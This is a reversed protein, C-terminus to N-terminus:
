VREEKSLSVLRNDKIPFIFHKSLKSHILKMNDNSSFWSDALVYSYKLHNKQCQLLMERMMENKTKEAVRKEKGTKKDIKQRTKAVVEFAIPISVEEVYYLCNLLNVGKVNRKLSHDYYWCTIENEDTYQKEEITDDFIIVAEEKEM